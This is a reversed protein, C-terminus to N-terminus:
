LGLQLNVNIVTDHYHMLGFTSKRGIASHGMADELESQEGPQESLCRQGLLPQPVHQLGPLCLPGAGNAGELPFAAVVQVPFSNGTYTHNEMQVSSVSPSRVVSRRSSGGPVRHWYLM